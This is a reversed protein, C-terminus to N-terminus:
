DDIVVARVLNPLAEVAAPDHDLPVILARHRSAACLGRRAADVAEDFDLGYGLGRPARAGPVTLSAVPVLTATEDEPSWAWLAPGSPTPVFRRPDLALNAYLSLARQATRMRATGFDPAVGYVRHRPRDITDIRRPDSVTATTARRPFQPLGEEDLSGILGTHEDICAAARRSFDQANVPPATRLAAISALFESESQVAAPLTAPHPRYHHRSTSLDSLDLRILVDHRATEDATALERFRHVLQASAIELAVPELPRGADVAGHGHIGHGDNDHGHIRHWAGSWGGPMRAAGPRLVPGIWCAADDAAGPAFWIGRQRCQEDLEALAAVSLPLGPGALTVVADYGPDVSGPDQSSAVRNVGAARLHRVLADTAPGAGLVLVSAAAFSQERRAPEHDATDELLGLADLRGLVGLVVSRREGDLGALLHEVTRAGDLFPTLREIWTYVGPEAILEIGRSSHIYATQRGSPTMFVGDRLRLASQPSIM